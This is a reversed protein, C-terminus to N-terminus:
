RQDGHWEEHCSEPTSHHLRSTLTLYRGRRVARFVAACVVILHAVLLAIMMANLSNAPNTREFFLTVGLVCFWLGVFFAYWGYESALGYLTRLDALERGKVMIGL